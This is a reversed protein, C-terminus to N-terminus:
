RAEEHRKSSHFEGAVRFLYKRVKQISMDKSMNRKRVKNCNLRLAYDTRRDIVRKKWRVLVQERGAVASCTVSLM